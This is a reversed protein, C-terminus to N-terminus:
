DILFLSKSFLMALVAYHDDGCQQLVSLVECLSHLDILTHLYEVEYHLPSNLGFYNTINENLKYKM